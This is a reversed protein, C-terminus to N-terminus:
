SIMRISYQCYGMFNCPLTLCWQISFSILINYLHNPQPAFFVLHLMVCLIVNFGIVLVRNDAVGIHDESCGQNLDLVLSYVLTVSM